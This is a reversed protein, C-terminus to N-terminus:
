TESEQKWTGKETLWGAVFLVLTCPLYAVSTNLKSSARRRQFFFASGWSTRVEKGRRRVGSDWLDDIKQLPWGSVDMGGEEAAAEPSSALDFAQDGRGIFPDM